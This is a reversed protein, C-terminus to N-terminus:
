AKVRKEEARAIIASQIESTGGGIEALKIDRYLRCVLYEEMYGAGGHLQVALNTVERAHTSALLKAGAAQASLSSIRGGAALVQDMQWATEYVYLKAAEYKTLIDALMFGVAQHKAISVGFAKRTKAYKKSEKLCAAMVGLSYAGLAIREFNFVEMTQRFGKGVGGLINAAPVPCDDFFLEGTPSGKLGMKAMPKGRSIGPLDMPVLFQTLGRDEGDADTLRALVVAVDCVPANTIYTKQGKLLYVKNGNDDTSEIASSRLAGVDSGADPETIGLAGILDGSIIGPLYEQKQEDTGHHAVASGFLGVSAGVSFFTSGCYESLIEQAFTATLLSSQQGGYKEAHLLGTYGTQALKKFHSRPIQGDKEAQESLPGIEKECFRRFEDTFAKQDENLEFEM